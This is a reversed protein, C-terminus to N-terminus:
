LVGLENLSNKFSKYSLLEPIKEEPFRINFEEEMAIILSMQKISDWSDVTDPSTDDKVKKEEIELVSAMVARIREEM